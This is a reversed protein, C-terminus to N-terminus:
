EVSLLGRADEESLGDLHLLMSDLEGHGLLEGMHRTVALAMSEVTPSGFLSVPPIDVQMADRVRSAILTALVSDGGISLFTDHVGVRDLRLVDQWIAALESEVPTRPPM